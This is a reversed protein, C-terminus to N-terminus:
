GGGLHVEEGGVVPYGGGVVERLVNSWKGIWGVEEVSSWGGYEGRGVDDVM